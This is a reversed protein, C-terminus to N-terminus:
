IFYVNFYFPRDTAYAEENPNPLAPIVLTPMHQFINKRFTCLVSSDTSIVLKKKLKKTM